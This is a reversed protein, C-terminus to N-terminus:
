ADDRGKRRIKERLFKIDLQDVDRLTNEKLKLLSEPTAIKMKQGEIERVESSIDDFAFAEGINAILDISFGDPTGYRIVPYRRLEQLSIEDISPDEFINKLAKKLNDINEETPRIFVDIDQTLRPLGHLIVAFGGILIYEM